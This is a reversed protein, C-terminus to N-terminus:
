GIQCPQCDEIQTVVVDATISDGQQLQSLQSAPKILYPMIMPDMFGAIPDNHVSATGANRDISVITGKLAYRKAAQEPNRARNCGMGGALLLVICAILIKFRGRNM